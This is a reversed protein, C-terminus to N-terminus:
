PFLYFRLGQELPENNAFRCGIINDTASQIIVRKNIKTQHRDDLNFAIRAQQGVEIAHRGPTIFQLGGCSINTVLMQGIDMAPAQMAYVGTLSTARGNRNESRSRQTKYTGALSTKKRYHKRFELSVPFTHGCTCRARITHQTSRFRDVAVTRALQCQPCSITATNDPKVFVRLITNSM